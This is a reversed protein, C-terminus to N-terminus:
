NELVNDLHFFIHFEFTIYVNFNYLYMFFFYYCHFHYSYIQSWIYNIKSIHKFM